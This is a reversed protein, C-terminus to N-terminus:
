PSISFASLIFGGDLSTLTPGGKQIKGCRAGCTGLGPLKIQRVGPRNVGGAISLGDNRTPDSTTFRHM